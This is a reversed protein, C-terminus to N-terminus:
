MVWSGLASSVSSCLSHDHELVAPRVLDHVRLRAVHEVEGSRVVAGEDAPVPVAAVVLLHARTEGAGGGELDRRTTWCHLESLQSTARATAGGGRLRRM